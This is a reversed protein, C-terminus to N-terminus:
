AAARVRVAHGHECHRVPQEDSPTGRRLQRCLECVVDAGFRFVHEGILPTRGCDKCCAREAELAGVGKRLLHSEFDTRIRM